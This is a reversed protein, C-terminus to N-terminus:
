RGGSAMSIRGVTVPMKEIVNGVRTWCCLTQQMGERQDDVVLISVNATMPCRSQAPCHLQHTRLRTACTWRAVRSIVVLRSTAACGKWKVQEIKASVVASQWTPHDADACRM